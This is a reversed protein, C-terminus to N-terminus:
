CPYKPESIHTSHYEILVLTQLYAPTDLNPSFGLLLLFTKFLLDSCINICLVSPGSTFTQSSSGKTTRSGADGEIFVMPAGSDGRSRGAKEEVLETELKKKGGAESSLGERM